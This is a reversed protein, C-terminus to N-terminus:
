NDAKELTKFFNEAEQKDETELLCVPWPEDLYTDTEDCHVEVHAWIKYTLM